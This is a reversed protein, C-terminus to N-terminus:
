EGRGIRAQLRRAAERPPWQDVDVRYNAERMAGVEIAGLLPRLAEV